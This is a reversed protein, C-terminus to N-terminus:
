KKFKLKFIPKYIIKYQYKIKIFLIYFLIGLIILGGTVIGIIILKLEFSSFEKKDFISEKNEVGKNKELDKQIKLTYTNTKKKDESTVIIEVIGNKKNSHLDKKLKVKSNPNTAEYTITLSKTMDTSIEYSYTNSDFNIDQGNVNLTRLTADKKDIKYDGRTINLIYKDKQIEDVYSIIEIINLGKKLSISGAGTVTENEDKTINITIIETKADVFVNYIKTTPNFEPIITNNNITINTIAKGKINFSFFAILLTLIIYIRKM